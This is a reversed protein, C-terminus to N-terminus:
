SEKENVSTVSSWEYSLTKVLLGSIQPCYSEIILCLSLFFFNAHYWIVFKVYFQCIWFSRVFRSSECKVLTVLNLRKRRHSATGPDSYRLLRRVSAEAPTRPSPERPSFCLFSLVERRTDGLPRQKTMSEVSLTNSRRVFRVSICM